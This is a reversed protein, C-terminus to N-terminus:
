AENYAGTMLVGKFTITFSWLLIDMPFHLFLNM